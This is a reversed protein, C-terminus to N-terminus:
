QQDHEEANVPFLPTRETGGRRAPQRGSHTRSARIAYAIPSLCLLLLFLGLAAMPPLQNLLSMVAGGVVVIILPYISIKILSDIARDFDEFSM